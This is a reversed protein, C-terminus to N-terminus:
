FVVAMGGALSAQVNDQGGGVIETYAAGVATGSDDERVEGDDNAVGGVIETDRTRVVTDSDHDRAEDDDNTVDSVVQTNTTRVVTDSGYERVEDDNTAEGVVRAAESNGSM